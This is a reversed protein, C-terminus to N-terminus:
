SAGTQFIRMVLQRNMTSDTTLRLRFWAIDSKPIQPLVYLDQFLTISQWSSDDFGPKAWEPNDGAKFKWGSDLAIWGSAFKTNKEGKASLKFVSRKQSFAALPVLLLFIFLHKM